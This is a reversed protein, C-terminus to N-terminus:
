TKRLAKLRQPCNEGESLSFAFCHFVPNDQCTQIFGQCSTLRREKSINLEDAMMGLAWRRDRTVMERANAYTDANRSTSPLGAEQIMRFIEVGTKVDNLGYLYV